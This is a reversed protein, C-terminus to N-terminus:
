MRREVAHSGTAPGAAGPGDGHAGRRRGRQGARRVAQSVETDTRTLGGAVKVKLENAVDLVGIM